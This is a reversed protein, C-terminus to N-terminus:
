ATYFFHHIVGDDMSSNKQSLPINYTSVMTSLFDPSVETDNLMYVVRKAETIAHIIHGIVFAAIIVAALGLIIFIPNM